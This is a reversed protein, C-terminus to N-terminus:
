RPTFRVIRLDPQNSVPDRYVVFLRHLNEPFRLVSEYSTKWRDNAQTQFIVGSMQFDDRKQPRTVSSIQGPKATGHQDGMLYRILAPSANFVLSGNEPLGRLSDDLVVIRYLHESDETAPPVFLLLAGKLGQPVTAIAAPQSNVDPESRFVIRGDTVTLSIPQSFEERPLECRIASDDPGAYLAAPSGPQTKLSLLRCQLTTTEAGAFAALLLSITLYTKM